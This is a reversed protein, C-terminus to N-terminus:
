ALLRQLNAIKTAFRAKNAMRQTGRERPKRPPPAGDPLYCSVRTGGKKPSYIKLRGGILQTRYNMIHFGLGQKLKSESSLGVGDDTVHLVTGRQSRELKILIERAQAHKNGNIVAERAIRYLQAAAINDEIHFSPKVELRCPTRWIERDVLDELANVLGVADVDSRHLALSVNRADTAAANVLEAIKEIDGADIVRHNKLRLATSRAMFAVAALHQCVGDHLEQGLRQQERDSVSLIEGELGKRREIEGKLEKNAIHLERTRNRVREELLEKSEQLAAEAKKRRTIDTISAFWGIVDGNSDRDPTYVCHVWRAGVSPYSIESEYEVTRGELVREIYHSIAKLNKKGVIEVIPKGAIEAAKQGLMEAYARSVYRYRLDRTCRTLMFPTQSVIADLEAQKEYFAAEAAKRETVDVIATQYLLAGNYM